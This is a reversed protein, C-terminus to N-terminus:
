RKRPNSSEKPKMADAEKQKIEELYKVYFNRLYIPMNYVQEFTFGGNGFYALSFIIKHTEVKYESTLGFFAQGM